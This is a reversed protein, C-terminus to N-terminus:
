EFNLFRFDESPTPNFDAPSLEALAEDDNLDFDDSAISLDGSSESGDDLFGRM